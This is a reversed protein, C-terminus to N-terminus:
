LQEELSIQRVLAALAEADVPKGVMPIDDLQADPKEDPMGSLFIIPLGPHESQLRTALEYGSMGPMRIDTIVVHIEANTALLELAAEGNSALTCSLGEDELLLRVTNAVLADDDVLLVKLHTKTPAQTQSDTLPPTTSRPLYLRVTTGIGEKSDLIVEGSTKRVFDRIMSLGLGRGAGATKTTYFLDFVKEVNAESIGHGDDSVSVLVYEGPELASPLDDDPTCNRARIQLRGRDEIADRANFAINVLASELMAADAHVAWRGEDISSEIAIRTDLTRRLMRVTDPLVGTLEQHGPSLPEQSAFALLQRTLDAAHHVTKEMDELLQREEEARPSRKMLSTSGQIVTLLNNFDHAVGATLQGMDELRQSARRAAEAKKTPRLDRLTGVAQVTSTDSLLSIVVSIPISEGAKSVANVEIPKNPTQGGSKFFYELGVEHRKSDSPSMFMTASKGLVERRAYGLMEECARNFETICGQRDLCIIGDGVSEAIQSLYQQRRLQSSLTGLRWVLLAYLLAAIVVLALLGVISQVTAPTPVFPAPGEQTAGTLAHSFPPRTGLGQSSDGSSAAQSPNLYHDRFAVITQSYANATQLEAERQVAKLLHWCVLGTVSTVFIVSIALVIALSRPGLLLPERKPRGSIPNPSNTM